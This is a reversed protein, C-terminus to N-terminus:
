DNKELIFQSVQSLFNLLAEEASDFFKDLFEWQNIGSKAKWSYKVEEFNHSWIQFNPVEEVLRDLFNTLKM